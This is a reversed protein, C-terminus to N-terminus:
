TLTTVLGGTVTLTTTGGGSLSLTRTVPGFVGPSAGSQFREARVVGTSSDAHIVILGGNYLVMEGCAAVTPHRNLSCSKSLGNYIVVGRSVLNTTAGANDTAKVALVSYTPDFYAPSMEIASAGGGAIITFKSNTITLGLNSCEMLPTAFNPGVRLNLAYIGQWGLYTGFLGVMTGTGDNVKFIPPRDTSAGGGGPTPGVLLENTAM